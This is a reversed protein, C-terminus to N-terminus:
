RRTQSQCMYYPERGTIECEHAQQIIKISLAPWNYLAPAEIAPQRRLYTWVRCCYRSNWLSGHETFVSIEVHAARLPVLPYNHAHKTTILAASMSDLPLGVPSAVPVASSPLGHEASVTSM